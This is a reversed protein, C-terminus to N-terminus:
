FGDVVRARNCSEVLHLVCYSTIVKLMLCTEPVLGVPFSEEVESHISLIAAWFLKLHELFKLDSYIAFREGYDLLCRSIFYDHSISIM